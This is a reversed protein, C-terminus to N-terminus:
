QKTIGVLDNVVQLIPNSSEKETKSVYGVPIHKFMADTANQLMETLRPNEQQQEVVIFDELTRAVAARHRNVAILHNNVNYNKIVFSLGYWLAAILVLKSILTSWIVNASLNSITAATSTAHSALTLDDIQGLTKVWLLILVVLIAPYGLGVGWTWFKVKSDYKTVEADFHAAMRAAAREGKASGVDKTASRIKETEEKITKLEKELEARIQVVKKTEKDLDQQTSNERRREDRLFPLLVMVLQLYVDNYFSDVRNNFGDHEQKPNSVAALDFNRLWELLDALRTNLNKVQNINNELLLETYNLDQTEKLYEQAKKLKKSATDFVLSGFKNDLALEEINVSFINDSTIQENM